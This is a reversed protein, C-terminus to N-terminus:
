RRAWSPAAGVIAELPLGLRSARKLQRGRWITYLVPLVELTLFASTALGGLMPAAVRKMIEAGSGDAWLLPLLGAAMTTITMIKPRLRQVTGEAHADVIDQRLRIRGERMRRHFAEDIYVVMVVGTQMALGVASLLGVWVPASLPYRLLFLTWFSGVLAFPVSILVILAETVNKFQLFLLGFMLLAVLPAIWMLRRQGAAMLEYQGTWDIREGPQLGIEGRGIAGSLNERAAKVYTAVDTGSDLDVYVYAVMEGNETRITAPVTDYVPHGILGLPVVQGTKSRVTIERLLDADAPKMSMNPSIRLRYPQQRDPAIGSDGPHHGHEIIFRKPRFATGGKGHWTLENVQGGSIVFDATSLALAPDVHHQAVASDDLKLRLRPEGGLSEFVASRAHPLQAVWKQVANGLAELREPSAAVIRIGVPTRVGATSMMDMRARAPASWASAWGPTRTARDLKDVLEATTEQKEEPWLLRLAAKLGAPAWSSYWRAHFVKPWVERPKLRITTEAMSLPAPDTATNARGVKGFAEAVEPFQALTKDFRALQVGADGASVGPLTTPMFLLDGEDVRPLFEGGLRTMIPFCSAAALAATALTLTPRALAFTVFPRYIRVLRKTIPNDFEPVIRGRVLRDRLAPAVTVAVIAAALIVLTKTFALPRLLRGTEGTFAFVPLFSLATIVLSILIAPAISGAAGILAARRDRESAGTGLTEVRRHCAELAVVDADVAMGLAIGIGGLSMITAPVGFLYMGAFTMLLVIPLTLAPALASRGHLLFMLIVLVVVAVEEALARLLTHEVRNALDLRSYITVIKINRPLHKQALQLTREVAQIVARPDADRKAIVIGGAVQPDGGLDTVGVPMDPTLATHGIDGVLRKTRNGLLLPITDIKWPDPNGNVNSRVTEVVDSFAVNRARLREADSEIVLQETTGGVSAVEAVGPIKELENRLMEDQVRHGVALPLRSSGVLAYEYIWGTSSAPPGLELRITPPLRSKVDEELRRIIERRGPELSKSSGFLVDVYAMGSMSAGRVSSAGPISKLSETLVGTVRTAVESAPHGMWEVVLGVQPDSLDPVADAALRRRAHEGWIGLAVALVIVVV